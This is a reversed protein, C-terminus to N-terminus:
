GHYEYEERHLVGEGRDFHRKKVEGTDAERAKNEGELVVGVADFVVEGFVNEGIREWNANGDRETHGGERNDGMELAKRM